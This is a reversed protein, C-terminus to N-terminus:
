NPGPVPEFRLEGEYRQYFIGGVLSEPDPGMNFRASSANRLLRRGIGRGEPQESEIVCDRVRAKPAVICSFVVSWPEVGMPTDRLLGQHNRDVKVLESVDRLADRPDTTLRGCATLVQDLASPDDPLDLVIRQAPGTSLPVTRVTLQDITKLSRVWRADGLKSVRTGDSTSRWVASGLSQESGTELRRFFLGNVAQIVIEATPLGVITSNLEGDRCQVLVAQGSEYRVGAIILKRGTDVQLEWGDGILTGSTSTSSVLVAILAFFCALRAKM